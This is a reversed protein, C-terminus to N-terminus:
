LREGDIIDVVDLDVSGWLREGDIIEVIGDEFVDWSLQYEFHTPLLISLKYCREM